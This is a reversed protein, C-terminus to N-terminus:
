QIVVESIIGFLIDGVSFYDGAGLVLNETLYGDKYYIDNKQSELLILKKSYFTLKFHYDFLYNSCISIDCYPSRGIWFSGKNLVFKTIKNQFKVCLKTVTERKKQIPKFVVPATESPRELFVCNNLAEPPFIGLDIIQLIPKESLLKPDKYM